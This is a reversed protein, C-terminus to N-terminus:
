AAVWERATDLESTGFVKVEGPIMWAFLSVSHRMV